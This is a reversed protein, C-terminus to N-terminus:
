EAASPEETAEALPWPGVPVYKRKAHRAEDAPPQDLQKLLQAVKQANDAFDGNWAFGPRDFFPIRLARALPEVRQAPIEDRYEIVRFTRRKCYSRGELSNNRLVGTASVKTQDAIIDGSFEGVWLEVQKESVIEQPQAERSRAIADATKIQSIDTPLQANLAATALDANAVDRLLALLQQVLPAGEKKMRAALRENVKHQEDCRALQLQRRENEVEQELRAVTNGHLKIDIAAQQKERHWADFREMSEITAEEAALAELREQASALADRAVKLQNATETKSM